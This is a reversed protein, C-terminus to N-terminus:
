GKVVLIQYSISHSHYVLKAESLELIFTTNEAEEKLKKYDILDAM